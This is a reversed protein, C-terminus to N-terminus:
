AIQVNAYVPHKWIPVLQKLREIIQSSGEFAAHRHRATVRVFLSAEGVPVLGIRHHIIVSVLGYRDKAEDAILALQREAMTEFAEYEIAEITREHEVSRVVGFFDVVAGETVSFRLTRPDLPQKTIRIECFQM